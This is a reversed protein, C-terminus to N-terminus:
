KECLLTNKKGDKKCQDEYQFNAGFRIMDSNEWGDMLMWGDILMWGNVIWGKADM